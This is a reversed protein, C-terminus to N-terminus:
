NIPLEKLVPAPNRRWWQQKLKEIKGIGEKSIFSRLQKYSRHPNSENLEQRLWTEQYWGEFPPYECRSIEIQLKELEDMAQLVKNWMERSSGSKIAEHLLIAANTHRYDILFGLQVDVSFFRKQALNMINLADQMKTFTLKQTENRAKLEIIKESEYNILQKGKVKEYLNEILVEIENVAFWFRNPRDILKFYNEYSNLVHGFLDSQNKNESSFYERIWWSTFSKAPNSHSFVKEADWCIDAIMRTGMVYDRLESVNVLMYETAGASVIKEFEQAILSPPVVQTLQKTKQEWWYALHYYVGHKWHGKQKPLARMRGDDDDVWIIIVDEPLQFADPNEYFNNLMEAYLTFTFVPAEKDARIRSKVMDVQERIVDRFLKNKQEQTTGEPFDFSKDATNRLGVPWIANLDKNENLGAEWYRLMGESNSFWDWVPKVERKEALGRTFWWPNSLLIDYHHSTFFLGWDSALKQIEFRRNARTYPATMNMKLRLTTEFYRKYWELPIDGERLPYGNKDYPRQLIDEDDHFLGRYKFAPPNAQFNIKKVILPNRREPRYGTWHYLPDIGLRESLTYVAFATGRPDSGILIIKNKTSEISFSEWGRDNKTCSLEYKDTINNITAIHISNKKGSPNHVIEPTKGSIKRIDEALFLAAQNVIGSENKGVVIECVENGSVLLIDGTAPTGTQVWSGRITETWIGFVSLTSIFVFIVIPISKM